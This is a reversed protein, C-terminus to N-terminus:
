TVIREGTAKHFLVARDARFTFARRDGAAAKEEADVKAVLSGPGGYDLFLLTADGLPEVLSVTAPSGSAGDTLRVHEPRVGLV